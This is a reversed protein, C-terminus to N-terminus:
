KLERGPCLYYKIDKLELDRQVSMGSSKKLEPLIINSGRTYSDAGYTGDKYFCLPNLDVKGKEIDHGSINKVKLKDIKTSDLDVACIKIAYEDSISTYADNDKYFTFEDKQLLREDMIHIQKYEQSWEWKLDTYRIMAGIPFYYKNDKKDLVIGEVNESNNVKLTNGNISFEFRQNYWDAILTQTQKDLNVKGGLLDEFVEQSVYIRNNKAYPVGSDSYLLYYSGMQLYVPVNKNVSAGIMSSGMSSIIVLIIAVVRKINIYEKKM